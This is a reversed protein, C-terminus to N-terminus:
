SRAARVALMRHLPASRDPHGGAIFAQALRDAQALAAARSDAHAFLRLLLGEATDLRGCDILRALLAEWYRAALKPLREPLADLLPALREVPYDRPAAAVNRLLRREADAQLEPQRALIAINRYADAINIDRPRQEAFIQRYILAAPGFQLDDLLQDARRQLVAVADDQERLRVVAATEGRRWLRYLGVMLAGALFGAFHAMYNVHGDRDLVFRQLLENTLWVPLIALAPWRVTGFVFILWYFFDIRRLGFLVLYAAMVASIAGSAGLSYSYLGSPFLLDPLAAGLGGLLFLLLFGRRGLAAEVTYGVVFLVAMNGLLHMIDAHLFMHTVVTVPQPDGGNLSYRETLIRARLQEHRDRAARWSAYTPQDPKIIQNARLQRMFGRDSEMEAHCGSLDKDRCEPAREHENRADLYDRYAASEVRALGSKQYQYEAEARRQLDRGQLVFAFVCLAIVCLTALPPHSWDRQAPLPLILM